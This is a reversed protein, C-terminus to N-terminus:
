DKVETVNPLYVTEINCKYFKYPAVKTIKDNYFVSIDNGEIFNKIFDNEPNQANGFLASRRSM